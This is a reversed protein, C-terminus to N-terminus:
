RKKFELVLHRSKKKIFLHFFHKAQTVGNVFELLKYIIAAIFILM